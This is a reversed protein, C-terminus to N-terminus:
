VDEKQNILCQGPEFWCDKLSDLMQGKIDDDITELIEMDELFAEVKERKLITATQLIHVFTQRDLAWLEVTEKAIITAARPANYLLALEGFTEGPQYTKLFTDKDDFPNLRKYCDLQGTEIIYFNNGDEGEKIIVEGAKKTLPFIADIIVQSEKPSLNDFM